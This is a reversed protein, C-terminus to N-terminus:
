KEPPPTTEETEKETEPLPEQPQPPIKLSLSLEKPIIETIVNNPLYLLQVPITYDGEKTIASLDLFPRVKQLQENTLIGELTVEVNPIKYGEPFQLNPNPSPIVLLPQNFLHHQSNKAEKVIAIKVIIKEETLNEVHEPLELEGPAEYSTIHDDITILAAPISQMENLISAPGRLRVSAPTITIKTNKDKATRDIIKHKSIPLEKEVIKSADLSFVTPTWSILKVLHRRCKINAKEIQLKPKSVELGEPLILQKQVIFDDATLKRTFLARCQLDITHKPNDVFVENDDYLLQIPIGHITQLPFFDFEGDPLTVNVTEWIVLALVLTILKRWFDTFFTRHSQM